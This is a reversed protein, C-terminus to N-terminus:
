TQRCLDKTEERYNHKQAAPHFMHTKAEVDVDSAKFGVVIKNTRNVEQAGSAPLQM